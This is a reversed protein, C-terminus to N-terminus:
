RDIEEDVDALPESHESVLAASMVGSMRQIDNLAAVIDESRESELTIVIKGEPSRAHVAAGPLEAIRASVAEAQAPLAHVLASAMHLRSESLTHETTIM